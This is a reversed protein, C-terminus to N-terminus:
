HTGTTADDIGRHPYESVSRGTFLGNNNDIEVSPAKDHTGHLPSLASDPAANPSTPTSYPFGSSPNEPGYYVQASVLTPGALLTAAFAISLLVKM